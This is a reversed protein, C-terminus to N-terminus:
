QSTGGGHDTASQEVSPLNGLDVRRVAEILRRQADEPLKGVNGDEFYCLAKLTLEPNFQSGYILKAAAVAHPLDIAKAQIMADIDLYDKLEARWQVVAAKTGAFDRISAVTLRNEDVTDGPRIRKLGPVGFFSVSVQGGRDVRATLTSPSKQTVTADVLFPVSQLLSDPNFEESSFFDFDASQRHGLRLALATGGYLVFTSPIDGLEDWLRRQAAPLIEVRPQFPQSM